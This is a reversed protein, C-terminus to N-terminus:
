KKGGKKKPKNNTDGTLIDIVLDILAPSVTVIFKKFTDNM